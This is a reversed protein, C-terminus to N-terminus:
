LLRWPAPPPLLWPQPRPLFLQLPLNRECTNLATQFPTPSLSFPGPSAEAGIGPDPVIESGGTKVQRKQKLTVKESTHSSPSCGPFSHGSSFCRSHCLCWTGLARARPASPRPSSPSTLTACASRSETGGCLCPPSPPQTGPSVLSFSWNLCSSSIM